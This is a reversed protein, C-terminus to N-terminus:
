ARLTTSAVPCSPAPCHHIGGKTAASGACRRAWVASAISKAASRPLRTATSPAPAEANSLAAVASSAPAASTDSNQRRASGCTTCGNRQSVKAPKRRWRDSRSSAQRQRNM